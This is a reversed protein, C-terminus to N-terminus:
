KSRSTVIVIGDHDEDVLGGKTEEAVAPATWPAPTPGLYRDDFMTSGVADPPGSSSGKPGGACSACAVIAGLILLGLRM